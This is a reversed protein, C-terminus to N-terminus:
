ALRLLLYRVGEDVGVAVTARALAVETAEPDLADVGRRARVAEGVVTEDLSQVQGADLDVAPHEGLERDGLRRGESGDHLSGLVGQWLVDVRRRRCRLARGDPSQDWGRARLSA